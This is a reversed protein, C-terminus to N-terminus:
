GAHVHIREGDKLRYCRYGLVVAGPDDHKCEEIIDEVAMFLQYPLFCYANKIMQIDFMLVSTEGDLWMSGSLDTLEKYPKDGWDRESAVVKEHRDNILKKTIKDIVDFMGKLNDIYGDYLGDEEDVKIGESKLFDAWEQYWENNGFIQTGNVNTRYSM